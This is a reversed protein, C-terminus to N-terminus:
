FRVTRSWLARMTMAGNTAQEVQVKKKSVTMGLNKSNKVKKAPKEGAIKERGRRKLTLTV